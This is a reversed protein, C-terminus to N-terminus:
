GKLFYRINKILLEPQEAHVWHGANSISLIEAAPFLTHIIPYDPDSIYDSNEGKIFLVPFGTIGSGPKIKAPELGDLISELNESLAKLNIKWKFSNKDKRTINKLLFQRVRQSKIKDALMMDIDMRSDAHSLNTELMAKMVGAHDLTHPSPQNEVNYARPSIDIVILSQVREPYSTAFFMATKGGMSHGLINAKKIKNSDMFGLLDGTLVQYNHADTHPSNGHNRQDPIFVEYDEALERGVSVWNDSSGYLGHLIILAPGEGFHRYFLQM